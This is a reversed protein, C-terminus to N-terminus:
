QLGRNARWLLGAGVVQFLFNPIWVILHPAFQPKAQLSRGLVIFSYYVLVLLLAVAVGVSTERRHARIGLPIGVLTFGVCAFSFAVQSNMIVKVPMPNVGARALERRKASLQHFALDSDGVQREPAESLRLPIQLAGAYMPHRQGEIIMVQWVDVLSLMAERAAQDLVLTGRTAQWTNEVREGAPDLQYLLVDGLQNGDVKGFRAIFSTKNTKEGTSFGKLFTRAPVVSLSDGSRFQNLLLNYALRCQPGAQMNIWACLGSMVVSLLLVPMVLSVLSLGSARAATLEQDASFRGFVLLTATLFGMPLAYALVFPILLAIAQFLVGLTIQRNVLLHLVEKLVSGLLMVFTFVAVTLLLTALVQRALYLHLTKM